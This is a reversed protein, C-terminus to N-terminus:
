PRLTDPLAGSMLVRKIRGRRKVVRKATGVALPNRETSELRLEVRQQQLFASQGLNRRCLLPVHRLPGGDLRADGREDRHMRTVFPTAQKFAAVDTKRWYEIQIFCRLMRM